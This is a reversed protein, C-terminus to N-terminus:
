AGKPYDYLTAPNEVLIRRRVKEDPVWETLLDLLM